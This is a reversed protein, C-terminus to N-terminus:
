LTLHEFLNAPLALQVRLDMESSSPFRPDYMALHMINCIAILLSCVYQGTISRELHERWTNNWMGYLGFSFTQEAKAHCMHADHLLSHGPRTFKCLVYLVSGSLELGRLTQLYM